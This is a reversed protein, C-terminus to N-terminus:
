RISSTTSTAARSRTRPTGCRRTRVEDDIKNYRTMTGLDVLETPEGANVASKFAAVHSKM